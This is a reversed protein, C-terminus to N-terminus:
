VEQSNNRKCVFVVDGQPHIDIEETDATSSTREPSDAVDDGEDSSPAVAATLVGQSTLQGTIEELKAKLSRVQVQLDLIVEGNSVGEAVEGSAM